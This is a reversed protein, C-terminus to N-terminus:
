TLKLCGLMKVLQYFIETFGDPSIAELFLANAIPHKPRSVLVKALSRFEFGSGCRCHSESPGTLCGRGM